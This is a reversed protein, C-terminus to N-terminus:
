IFHYHFKPSVFNHGSSFEHDKGNVQFGRQQGHQGFLSMQAAPNGVGGAVGGSGNLGAQHQNEQDHHFGFLGSAGNMRLRNPSCDPGSGPPTLSGQTRGIGSSLKSNTSSTSAVVGTGFAGSQRSTMHHTQATQHASSYNIAGVAAAAGAAAAATLAYPYLSSYAAAALHNATPGLSRHHQGHATIDHYPNGGLSTKMDM